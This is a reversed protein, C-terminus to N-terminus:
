GGCAPWALHWRASPRSAQTCCVRKWAFVTRARHFGPTSPLSHLSCASRTSRFSTRACPAPPSARNPFAGSKSARTRTYPVWRSLVVVSSSSKGASRRPRQEGGIPHDRAIPSADRSSGFTHRARRPYAAEGSTSPTRASRRPTEGRDSSRDRETPLEVTRNPRTRSPGDSGRLRAEQAFSTSTRHYSM